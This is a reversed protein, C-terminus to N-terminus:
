RERCRSCRWGSSKRNQRFRQRDAPVIRRRARHRQLDPIRRAASGQDLRAREGVPDSAPRLPRRPRWPHRRCIRRSRRGAPRRLSVGDADPHFLASGSIGAADRRRQAQLEAPRRAGGAAGRDAHRRPRRRRLATGAQFRDGEVDVAADLAALRGFLDPGAARCDVAAPYLALDGAGDAGHRFRRSRLRFRRRARWGAPDRLHGRGIKIGRDNRPPSTSGPIELNRTQDKPGDRFSSSSNASVNVRRARAPVIAISAKLLLKM